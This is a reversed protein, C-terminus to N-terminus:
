AEPSILDMIKELVDFQMKAAPVDEKKVAHIEFPIPIDLYANIKKQIAERAEDIIKKNEPSYSPQKQGNLELMVPNGADDKTVLKDQLKKQEESLGQIYKQTKEIEQKVLRLNKAMAYQYKDSGMATAAATVGDRLEILQNRTIEIKM